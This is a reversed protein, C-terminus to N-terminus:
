RAEAFDFTAILNQDIMYAISAPPPPFPIAHRFADVCSAGLDKNESRVVKINHAMGSQDFRFSLQVKGGPTNRAPTWRQYVRRRIMELYRSCTPDSNCDRGSGTGDGSGSGTGRGNGSGIGNGSGNGAGSGNGSGGGIGTGYRTGSGSDLSRIKPGTADGSMAIEGVVGDAINPAQYDLGADTVPNPSAAQMVRPGASSVSVTPARRLEPTETSVVSATQTPTAIQLPQVTTATEVQRQNLLKPATTRVQTQIEVKSVDALVPNPAIQTVERQVIERQQQVNARLTRRALMKPRAVAREPEEVAPPGGGEQGGEPQLEVQPPPPPMRVLVMDVKLEPPEPEPPVTFAVLAVAYFLAGHVALSVMLNAFRRSSGTRESSGYIEPASRASIAESSGAGHTSELKM